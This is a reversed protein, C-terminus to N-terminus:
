IVGLKELAKTVYLAREKIKLDKWNFYNNISIINHDVMYMLLEKRLIENEEIVNINEM